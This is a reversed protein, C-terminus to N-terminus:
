GGLVLKPIVFIEVKFGLVEMLEKREKDQMACVSELTEGIAVAVKRSIFCFNFAQRQQPKIVYVQINYRFVELDKGVNGSHIPDAMVNANVAKECM